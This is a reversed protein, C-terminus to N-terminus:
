REVPKTPPAGQPAPRGKGAETSQGVKARRGRETKVCDNGRKIVPLTRAIVQMGDLVDPPVSEAVGHRNLIRTLPEAIELSEDPRIITPLKQSTSWLDFPWKVWEAVDEVKLVPKGPEEIASKAPTELPGERKPDIINLFEENDGARPYPQTEVAPTEIAARKAAKKKTKKKKRVKKKKAKLRAREQKKAEQQEAWLRKNEASRERRTMKKKTM